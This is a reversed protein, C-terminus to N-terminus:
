LAERERDAFAKLGNMVSRRDAMYPGQGGFLAAHRTHFDYSPPDYDPRNDFDLGFAEKAVDAVRVPETAFNVLTLGAELATLVDAWLNDLGYFQYVADCHIKHTENGHLLDYIANKKLGDGFLGPLRVTLVSRFLRQVAQELLFRHRGYAHHGDPDIPTDEDVGRPEPYVDITSVLVVQDARAKALATLLRQMNAYDADPERNALWKAAPMGSVVLLDFSRGAIQEINKSNYHADFAHQAALNGGVFGTHGIVADPM